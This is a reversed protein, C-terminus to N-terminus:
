PDRFTVGLGIFYRTARTFRGDGTGHLVSITRDSFPGTESTILDVRTDGDVDAARSMRATCCTPEYLRVFGAPQATASGGLLALAFAFKLTVLSSIRISM